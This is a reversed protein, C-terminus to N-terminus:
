AKEPATESGAEKGLDYSAVTCKECHMAIEKGCTKCMQVPKTLHERIFTNMSKGEVVAKLKIQKLLESPMRITTSVM